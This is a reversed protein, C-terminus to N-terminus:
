RALSTKIVAQWTIGTSVSGINTVSLYLREGYLYPKEATSGAVGAIDTQLLVPRVRLDGSVVNTALNYTAMTSIAPQVYVTVIGTCGAAPSDLLIEEVYGRINENSVLVPTVGNTGFTAELLYSEARALLPLAVTMALIM